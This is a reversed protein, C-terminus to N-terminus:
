SRFVEAATAIVEGTEENNSIPHVALVEGTAPNTVDISQAAQIDRWTGGAYNQLIRM